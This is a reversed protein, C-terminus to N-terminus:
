KSSGSAGPDTKMGGQDPMTRGQNPQSERMKAQRLIEDKNFDGDGGGSKATRFLMFVALLVLVVAVGVVLPKPINEM